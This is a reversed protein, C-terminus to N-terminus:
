GISDFASAANAMSSARLEEFEGFEEPMSHWDTLLFGVEVTLHYLCILAIILRERERNTRQYALRSVISVM